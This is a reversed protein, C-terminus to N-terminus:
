EESSARATALTSDFNASKTVQQVAQRFVEGRHQYNQFMDFSSCAPSLLVIDGAVANEAAKSVAELLTEVVACPTFLSWAARLKERAEGLLFAGKVRSALLPGLDHYHLGKDVGGAILWINPEGARGLPIAEISQQVASVNMAKSNDVFKIGGVECVLELRHPGPRYEKIAAIM